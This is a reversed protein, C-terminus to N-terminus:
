SPVNQIRLVSAQAAKKGAPENLSMLLLPLFFFDGCGWSLAKWVTKVAKIFNLSEEEVDEQLLGFRKGYLM